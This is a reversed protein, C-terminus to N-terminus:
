NKLMNLGYKIVKKLAITDRPDCYYEYENLYLLSSKDLDFLFVNVLNKWEPKRSSKPGYSVIEIYLQTHNKGKETLQNISTPKRDYWKVDSSNGMQTLYDMTDLKASHIMEIEPFEQQVVNSILSQNRLRIPQVSLSDFKSHILQYAQAFSLECLTFDTNFEVKSDGVSPIGGCAEFALKKISKGSIKHSDINSSSGCAQLLLM